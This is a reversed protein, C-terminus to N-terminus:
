SRLRGTEIGEGTARAVSINQSVQRGWLNQFFWFRQVLLEPAEPNSERWLKLQYLDDATPWNRGRFAYMRFITRACPWRFGAGNPRPCQVRRLSHAGTRGESAKEATPDDSTCLRDALEFFKHKRAEKYDLGAQILEVLVRNASTRQRKALTWGASGSSQSHSISQRIPKGSAM